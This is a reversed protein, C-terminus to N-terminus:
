KGQFLLKYNDLINYYNDENFLKWRLLDEGWECLPTIFYWIIAYPVCIIGKYNLPINGIVIKSYDWFRVGFHLAISGLILEIILVTLMGIFCQKWVKLNYYKPFHNLKGIVLGCIGGMFFSPLNTFGRWFCELTLYIAGSSGFLIIDNILEQKIKEKM